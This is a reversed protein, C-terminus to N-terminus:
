CRQEPNSTWPCWSTSSADSIRTVPAKMSFEVGPPVLVGVGDFLESTVGASTVTGTGAVVYIIEQQGQLKFPPIGSRAALTAFSVNNTHALVACRKTSTQPDGKTLIDREVLGGHSHRPMSERWDCMFM